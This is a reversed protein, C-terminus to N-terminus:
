IFRGFPEIARVQLLRDRLAALAPGVRDLRGDIWDDRIREVEALCAQSEETRFGTPLANLDRILGQITPQARIEGFDDQQWWYRYRILMYRLPVSPDPGGFLRVLLQPAAYAIAPVVFALNARATLRVAEELGVPFTLVMDAVRILGGITAAATTVVVVVFAGPRAGRMALSGRACHLYFWPVVLVFLVGFVVYGISVIVGAPPMM